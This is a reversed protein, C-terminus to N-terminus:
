VLLIGHRDCRLVYRGNPINAFHEAEARIADPYITMGLSFPSGPRMKHAIIYFPQDAAFRKAATRKSIRTYTQRGDHFTLNNM